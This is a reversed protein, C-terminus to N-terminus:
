HTKVYEALTFLFESNKPKKSLLKGGFIDKVTDSMEDVDFDFIYEIAHRINREVSAPKTVFQESIQSYLKGIKIQNNNIIIWIASKIYSYGKLNSPLGMDKLVDYIKKEDVVKLKM